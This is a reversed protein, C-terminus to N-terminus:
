IGLHLSPSLFAVMLQMRMSLLHGLMQQYSLTQQQFSQEQISPRPLSVLFGNNQFAPLGSKAQHPTGTTTAGEDAKMFFSTSEMM